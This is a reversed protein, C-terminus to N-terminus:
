RGAVSFDLLMLALFGWAVGGGGVGGRSGGGWGRGRGGIYLPLSLPFRLATHHHRCPPVAALLCERQCWVPPTYPQLQVSVVGGGGGRAPPLYCSASTLPQYYTMQGSPGALGNLSATSSSVSAQVAPFRALRLVEHTLSRAAQIPNLDFSLKFKGSPTYLINNDNNRM